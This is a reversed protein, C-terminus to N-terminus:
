DTSPSSPAEDRVDLEFSTTRQSRWASLSAGMGDRTPMNRPTQSRSRGPASAVLDSAHRSVERVHVPWSISHDSSTKQGPQPVLGRGRGGIPSAVRGESGRTRQARPLTRRTKGAVNLSMSPVLLIPPTTAIDASRFSTAFGLTCAARELRDLDSFYRPEAGQACKLEGSDTGHISRLQCRASMGGCRNQSTLFTPIACTDTRRWGSIDALVARV